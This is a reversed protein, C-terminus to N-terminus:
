LPKGSETKGALLSVLQQAAAEPGPHAMGTEGSYGKVRVATRMPGPYFTNFRLQPHLSAYELAFTASMAEIAAKTIGYIGHYAKPTRGATDTVFVVPADASKELLPLCSRTLVYAATLNTQLGDLWDKPPVEALRMFGTFHTACHVLGDLRGFEAQLTEAVAEHDNWTAGNLNLPVIGPQAGGAKEILDYTAELKRITRGLLIVTAGRSAAAVATARGLGDGAGTILIVRGKLADAALAPPETISM